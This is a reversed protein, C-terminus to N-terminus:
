QIGKPEVKKFGGPISFMGEDVADASFGTLETTMELLSGNGGQQGGSSSSSQQSDSSKKRGLGFRGGLAGGLASGVSPKQQDQSQQDQAGQQTSQQGGPGAGAQGPQGQGGMVVTQYVPVGDLKSTEKYVEAMGKAIDPRSMFSGGPTWNLKEAMRRYFERVEGYGSIGRALWMDTTIVMAGQQGSQQDTAQMEMKVITEKADYGAIQKSNGTPNVSVKVSMQQGSDQQHMKQAMQDMAQRMQEFTMVTYTRKQLDVESITQSALDIITSRFQTRHLMRDGKLAVTSEIPERAQKSFAGAVKMMSAVVGGTITSKQQYSFDALLTGASIAVCAAGTVAKGLM